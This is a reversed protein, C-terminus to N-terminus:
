LFLSLPIWCPNGKKNNTTISKEWVPILGRGTTVKEMNYPFRWLFTLHFNTMKKNESLQM